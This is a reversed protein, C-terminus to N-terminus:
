RAELETIRRQLSGCAHRTRMESILAQRELKAIRILARALKRKATRKSKAHGGALGRLQKKTMTM